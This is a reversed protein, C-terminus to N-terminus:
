MHLANYVVWMIAFFADVMKMQSIDMLLTVYQVIQLHTALLVIQFRVYNAFKYHM